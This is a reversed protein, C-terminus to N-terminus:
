LGYVLDEKVGILRRNIFNTNTQRMDCGTEAGGNLSSRGGALGTYAEINANGAADVVCKECYKRDM